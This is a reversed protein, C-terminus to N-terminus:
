SFAATSAANGKDRHVITAEVAWGNAAGTLNVFKLTTGIGGDGDTLGTITLINDNTTAEDVAGVRTGDNDDAGPLARIISGLSYATDTTTTYTHAAGNNIAATYTVTIWDGARGAAASPITMALATSVSGKYHTNVSLETASIATLAAAGTGLSPLNFIKRANGITITAVGSISPHAYKALVTEDATPSLGSGTGDTTTMDDAIVIFGDSHPASNIYRVLENCVEFADGQTVTLAVSDMTVTEHAETNSKVSDFYMTVVTDSTPSITRLRSAPLCVSDDIGDNNAEDAQSRFFLWKEKEM